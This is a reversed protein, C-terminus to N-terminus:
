DNIRGMNLKKAKNNVVNLYKDVLVYDKIGKQNQGSQEFYTKMNFM